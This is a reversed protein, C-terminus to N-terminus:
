DERSKFVLISHGVEIYSAFELSLYSSLKRCCFEQSHLLFTSYHCSKWHMVSNLLFSPFGGPHPQSSVFHSVVWTFTAHTLLESMQCIHCSLSLLFPVFPHLVVTIEVYLGPRYFHLDWTACRLCPLEIKCQSPTPYPTLPFLLARSILCQPRSERGKVEVTLTLIWSETILNSIKPLNCLRM